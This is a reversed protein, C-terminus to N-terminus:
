LFLQKDSSFFIDHAIRAALTADLSAALRAAVIAHRTRPLLGLLIYAFSFYLAHTEIPFTNARRKECHCAFSSWTWVLVGCLLQDWCCTRTYALFHKVQPSFSLSLLLQPRSPPIHNWLLQRLYSWSNCAQKGVRKRCVFGLLYFRLLTSRQSQALPIGVVSDHYFCCSQVVCMGRESKMEIEVQNIINYRLAFLFALSFRTHVSLLHVM